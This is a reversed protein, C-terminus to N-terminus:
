DEKVAKAGGGSIEADKGFIRFTRQFPISAQISRHEQVCDTGVFLWGQVKPDESLISLTLNSHIV